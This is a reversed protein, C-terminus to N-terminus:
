LSYSSNLAFCLQSDNACLWQLRDALMEKHIYLGCCVLIGRPVKIFLYQGFAGHVTHM